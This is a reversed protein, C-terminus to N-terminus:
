RYTRKEVFSDLFKMEDSCKDLVYTIIYKLLSEEVEMLQELDCFAMEPEMQWFECAHVKTNSNEARFTPGFTYINRFAMAFTEGELQGSVTLGVKQGFFDTDYDVLGSKLQPINKLDMTTVTFMEGAGECDSATLIPTNVYIFDRDQFFTHIAMAAANRVRFIAQFLNTRTRLYAQDRLFERSHRKPQIPYDESADGLLEIKSAKLEYKQGGGQSEILNAEVKITSGVRIKQIDDFDKVDKEYVVQMTKFCSGDFFDIFGFEKQKRHNRVWGELVVSKNVYKESDAFLEKLLM